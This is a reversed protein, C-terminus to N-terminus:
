NEIAIAIASAPCSDVANRIANKLREPQVVEIDAKLYQGWMLFVEPCINVCAECGVCLKKNIKIRM